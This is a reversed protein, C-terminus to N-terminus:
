VMGFNLVGGSHVLVRCLGNVLSDHSLMYGCQMHVLLTERLEDLVACVVCVMIIKRHLV